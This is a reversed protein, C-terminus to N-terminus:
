FSSRKKPTLHSLIARNLSDVLKPAEKSCPPFLTQKWFDHKKFHLHHAFDLFPYQTVSDMQKYIEKNNTHTYALIKGTSNNIKFVKEYVYNYLTKHCIKNVEWYIHLHSMTEM